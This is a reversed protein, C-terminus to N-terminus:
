LLAGQEARRGAPNYTWKWFGQMGRAPVPNPFLEVIDFQWAFGGPQFHKRTLPDVAEDSPIVSNIAVTCLVEGRPLEARLAAEIVPMAATNQYADLLGRIVSKTEPKMAAHIAIPRYMFKVPPHWSRIEFPKMGAAIMSAWPQWVSIAPIRGPNMDAYDSFIEDGKHGEKGEFSNRGVAESGIAIRGLSGHLHPGSKGKQPSLLSGPM